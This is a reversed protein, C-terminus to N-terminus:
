ATDMHSPDPCWLSCSAQLPCGMNGLATPLMDQPCRSPEQLLCVLLADMSSLSSTLSHDQRSMQRPRDLYVKM